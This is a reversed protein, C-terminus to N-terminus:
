SEAKRERYVENLLEESSKVEPTRKLAKHIMNEAESKKYQLQLLIELAENKIDEHGETRAM